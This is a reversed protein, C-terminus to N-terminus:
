DTVQLVLGIARRVRHDLETEYRKLVPINNTNAVCFAIIEPTTRINLGGKDTPNSIWEVVNRVKTDPAKLHEPVVVPATSAAAVPAPADEDEEDDWDGATSTAAAPAPAVTTPPAPVPAPAAPAAVPATVPAPAANAALNPIPTAAAAPNTAASRRTRPTAAPAPAAPTETPKAAETAPQAPPAVDTRTPRSTFGALIDLLEERDGELVYQARLKGTATSDSDIGLAYHVLTVM